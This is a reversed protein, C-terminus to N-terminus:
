RYHRIVASIPRQKHDHSLRSTEEKMVGSNAYDLPPPDTRLAKPNRKYVETQQDERKSQAYVGARWRRTPEPVFPNLRPRMERERAFRVPKGCAVV